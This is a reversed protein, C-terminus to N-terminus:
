DRSKALNNRYLLYPLRSAANDKTRNSRRTEVNDKWGGALDHVRKHMGPILYQRFRTLQSRLAYERNGKARLWAMLEDIQEPETYVAWEDPKLLGEETYDKKRRETLSKAGKEYNACINSWEEASVGQVYLRGTSYNAQGYSNVLSALGVGDFWWYKDYYRDRGLPALRPAQSYQRFEREIAEERRIIRQEEEDLKRRESAIQKNELLRAKHEQKAKALDALRQAEEAKRQVAKERLAEQRSGLTRRQPRDDISSSDNVESDYEEDEMASSELEDEEGEGMSVDETIDPTGEATEATVNAEEVGNAAKVDAGEEGEVKIDNGEEDKKTAGEFILRDEILKKRARSLEVREKRLETLMHECEDFFSKVGKSMVAQECLFHIIIVKDRFSLTTYRHVPTQYLENNAGTAKTTAEQDGKAEEEKTMEDVTYEAIGSLHSLIPVLRPFNSLNARKSLVGCLSYEWGDRFTEARLIKRDWGRGFKRSAAFVDEEGIGNASVQNPEKPDEAPEESLDGVSTEAISSAKSDLEDMEEEEEDETENKTEDFEEEDSPLSAAQAAKTAAKAVNVPKVNTNERVIANILTGHVEAILNCAPDHTNHRLAAEYDDMTFPTLALPKGCAQLFLYSNMFVEFIDKPVGLLDKNPTPRERRRPVEDPIKAKAKLERDSIPDLLLDEIPFKVFKKKREEAKKREEEEALEKEREAQAKIEEETLVKGKRKKKPKGDVEEEPVAKRRRNLKGEKILENKRVVDAPPSTPIGYRQALVHRVIWPSGISADRLVCEKIYKKLITKSFSLRDRSFSDARREMLTNSFDGSGDPDELQIAYIYDNPDDIKNVESLDRNLDTGYTHIVEEVPVEVKAMGENEELPPADSLDSDSESGERKLKSGSAEQRQQEARVNAAEQHRRLLSRHPFVGRVKAFYRRSALPWHLLPLFLMSSAAHVCKDGSIDVILRENPFYRNKFRDYVLDVLNDIRGTM